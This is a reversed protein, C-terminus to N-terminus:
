PDRRVIGDCFDALHQIRDAISAGLTQRRHLCWLNFMTRAFVLHHGDTM